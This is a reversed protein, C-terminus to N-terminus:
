RRTPFDILDSIGCGLEECAKALFETPIRKIDGRVMQRVTGERLGTKEAFSKMTYGNQHLLVGLKYRIGFEDTHAVTNEPTFNDNYKRKTGAM